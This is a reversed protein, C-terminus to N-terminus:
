TRRAYWGRLWKILIWLSLGALLSAGVLRLPIDKLWDGAAVMLFTLPLIGIATTWTFTWWRVRALGAVYNVLNFAIVPMLRMTLLAFTGNRAIWRDIRARRDAQVHREVISRGFSRATWFAAQAGLMAGIWTILTGFITGYVLGNALAVLEAPFPIFSHVIMLGISVAVGWNGFARISQALEEIDHMRAWKDLLGILGNDLLALALAVLAVALLAIAIWISFPRVRHWVARTRSVAPASRDDHM